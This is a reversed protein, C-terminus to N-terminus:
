NPCYHLLYNALRDYEMLTRDPVGLKQLTCYYTNLLDLFQPHACMRAVVIAKFCRHVQNYLYKVPLNPQDNFIKNLAQLSGSTNLFRFGREQMFDMIQESCQHIDDHCKIKYRFYKTESLKGISVVLTNAEKRFEPLNDLFQQAIEEVANHRLGINVELFIENRGSFSLIMNQFGTPTIKRFQKLEPMPFFAEEKLFPELVAFTYIEAQKPCM